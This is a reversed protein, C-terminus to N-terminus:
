TEDTKTEDTAPFPPLNNVLSGFTNGGFPLTCDFTDPAGSNIELRDMETYNLSATATGSCEAMRYDTMKNGISRYNSYIDAESTGYTASHLGSIGISVGESFADQNAGLFMFDWGYVKTQHEIMEKLKTRTYNVSSNEQGDTIIMFVIKGPRLSEPLNALQTGLENINRAVSDFLPTGGYPIFTKKDLDKVSAIEVFNDVVLYPLNINRGSSFHVQTFTCKGYKLERQTKLFHNFGTITEHAISAMSGSSDFLVNIHTYNFDTM